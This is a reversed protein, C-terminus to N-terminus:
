SSTMTSSSGRSQPPTDSLARLLEDAAEDDTLEERRWRAVVAEVSATERGYARALKDQALRLLTQGNQERKQAVRPIAEIAKWLEDLGASKGSSVRLVPVPRCGPLNLLGRIEAELREAGPLDSKHVVVIDAVELLGAKQWQLDDGSEPQVLLVLVDALARVATDSQGAGATELLVIDFGFMSLASLLRALNAALAESGASATLSRIFLGADDPRSPMRVRDGLLAGGTLPSQPDCALVAVSKGKARLLEILRSILTSKGVGANGTVAVIKARREHVALAARVEDPEEGRGILTLLRSLALRDRQQFRQWLDDPM